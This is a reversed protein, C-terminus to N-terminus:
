PAREAAEAKRDAADIETTEVGGYTEQQRVMLALGLALYAFALAVAGALLAAPAGLVGLALVAGMLAFVLGALRKAANAGL